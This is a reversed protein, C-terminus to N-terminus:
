APESLFSARIVRIIDSLSVLGDLLGHQDIVWVRHVHKDIAKEVVEYLPSDEYCTVLEKSSTSVKEIFDVVDLNLWSQLQQIRCGRLDTASFTGILKRGKGNVLQNNDEGFITSAEIIPVATISTARMSKITDIVKTSQTIGFVTESAAGLEKVSKSMITELSHRHSNLFRLLDLQTLMRYCSASEVLEVGALHEMQGDLPVMARHIGKSFVEMCELVSTNPNLTWLSLSEVCHGIVSSVSVSMVQEMDISGSSNDDGAIHSLIDLMTVMGIYHKRVAGTQKDSELIM